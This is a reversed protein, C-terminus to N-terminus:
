PSECHRKRQRTLSAIKRSRKFLRLFKKTYSTSSPQEKLLTGIEGVRRNHQRSSQLLDDVDVITQSAGEGVEDAFLSIQGKSRPIGLVALFTPMLKWRKRPQSRAIVVLIMYNRGSGEGEIVEKQGQPVLYAMDNGDRESCENARGRFILYPQCPLFDHPVNPPNSTM